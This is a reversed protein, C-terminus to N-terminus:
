LPDDDELAGPRGRTVDRYAILEGYAPFEDDGVRPEVQQGVVYVRLSPVDEIPVAADDVDQIRWSLLSTLLPTM